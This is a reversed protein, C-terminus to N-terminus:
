EEEKEEQEVIDHDSQLHDFPLQSPPPIAL